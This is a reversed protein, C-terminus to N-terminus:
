PEEASFHSPSAKVDDQIRDIWRYVSSTAFIQQELM